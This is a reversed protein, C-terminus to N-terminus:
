KKDFREISQLESSGGRESCGSAIYLQKKYWIFQTGHRGTNLTPLTSWTETITNLVEVENHAAKQTMSEGGSFLINDGICISTCGARQTPVLTNLTSWTGTKFDFVDIEPVTLDMVKKIHGSSRRGGLLYLKDNCIVSTAHDRARPADPLKEWTQTKFDYVDFWEVHGDWHGDIIGCAIYLKDKYVNATTSARLRDEPMKFGKSWTDTKTQYVYAHEVPTERPYKGTFAGVVYVNGQYSVGQFHHLELPPKAGSSWANEKPNYISVEQIRRGGLLYFLGDSEIFAAEHRAVPEGQTELTKWTYDKLSQGAVSQFM